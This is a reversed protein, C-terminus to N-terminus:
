GKHIEQLMANPLRTKIAQALGNVDQVGQVTIDGIHFQIVQEPNKNAANHSIMQNMDGHMQQNQEMTVHHSLSEQIEEVNKDIIAYHANWATYLKSFYSDDNAPDYPALIRGDSTLIKGGGVTGDAYAKGRGSTHGNKLLEVSQKHNFIIDGRKIPFMEPGANGVTFFRGNRVIIEYGLEGLLAKQENSQVAWNGSVFATGEASANGTYNAIYQGDKLNMGSNIAGPLEGNQEITVRITCEATTGDIETLGKNISGVHDDAEAIPDKFQEFRDIVGDSGPTGLIENTKKGLDDISDILSGKGAPDEEEADASDESGIADTVSGVATKLSGFEGIVTGDGEADPNGIIKDATTKIDAIAATISGAGTGKGDDGGTSEDSGNGAGDDGSSGGGSIVSSVAGIAKKLNTFQKIISEDLTITNLESIAQMLSGVTQAGSLGITNTVDTIANKLLTFQGIIGESESGLTISNLNSMAQTLTTIEAEDSLGLAQAAKGISEALHDFTGSLNTINTNADSAASSLSVMNEDVRGVAEAAPNLSEGIGNLSDIYGQTANLYSGMQEVSQGATDSLASLMADNNSYIDALIGIYEDKFRAFAEESMGLIDDTEIGLQRLTSILKANEEIEALEEWRSKYDEMGQILNDWYKETDSILKDYQENIQDIQEDLLNIQENIIDKREELLDIEKEILGIEKEKDAITIETQADDVADKADRIGNTDTVYHMGKDSSYQLITKQNQMRALEYQAKQLDLQRQREDNAERIADIEDNIGDIAKEKAEIEKDISKIEEEYRAKEAEKAGVAADREAELADVAASKSDEYASIQKDLISTIGSLASEYLSKMGQLYKAQNESFNKAYKGINKFYKEYLKRLHDLYEKETIKGQDKLTELEELEKEFADVYANSATSGASGAKSAGGGINEFDVSTLVQSKLSEARKQLGGLTAEILSADAGPNNAMWTQLNSIQAMIQALEALIGATEASKGGLNALAQISAMTDLPNEAALMQQYVLIAVGQAADEAGLKEQAFAELQAYTANALDLGSEKLAETNEALAQFAIIEENVVGLDELATKMIEFNETGSLGAQTISTALADFATEVDQETSGTDSLVCVFDEFASYDVNLGSASMEDLKSRISDCTTLIDISNIAFGDETFIDQYAAQLSDFAPKLRTNLQDITESISLQTNVEILKTELESQIHSIWDKANWGEPHEGYQDKVTLYAELILEEEGPSSIENWLQAESASDITDGFGLSSMLQKRVNDYNVADPDALAMIYQYLENASIGTKDLYGILEPFRSSLIAVSLEGSKGLEELQKSASQFDAKAVIDKIIGSNDYTGNRKQINTTMGLSDFYMQNWYEAMEKAKTLDGGTLLGSEIAEQALQYNNLYDASNITLQDAVEIQEELLKNRKETADNLSELIDLKEAESEVVSLSNNLAAIKENAKRLETENKDYQDSLYEYGEKNYRNEEQTKKSVLSDGDFYDSFSTGIQNQYLRKQEIELLQKQLAIETELQQIRLHDYEDKDQLNKLASLETNLDELKSNINDVKAQSEEVTENWADWATQIAKVAFNIAIMIGINAAISKLKASFEASASSTQNMYNKYQQVVDGSLNAQKAFQFFKENTYGIKNGLEDATSYLSINLGSLKSLAESVETTIKPTQKLQSLLSSWGKDNDYNVVFM